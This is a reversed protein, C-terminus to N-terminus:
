APENEAAFPDEAAMEEPEKLLDAFMEDEADQASGYRENRVRIVENLFEDFARENSPFQVNRVINDTNYLRAKFLEQVRYPPLFMKRLLKEGAYDYVDYSFGGGGTKRCDVLINTLNRIRSDLNRISPSTMFLSSHLKRLYFFFQTMYINSGKSFMRSDLNVHAEDMVQISNPSRAVNYYDKYHTLPRSGRLGYNSYIDVLVGAKKARAAYYHALVSAGFTKGDGLHGQFVWLYM